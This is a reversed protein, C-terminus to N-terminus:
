ERLMRVPRQFRELRTSFTRLFRAKAYGQLRVREANEKKKKKKLIPNRWILWAPRSSKVEPLGGVEAERLALIVPM